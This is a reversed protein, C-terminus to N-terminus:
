KSSGSPFRIVSQLGHGAMIMVISSSLIGRVTLGHVGVTKIPLITQKSRACTTPTTTYFIYIRGSPVKLMVAYSAEPGDAPEVQVMDQWTKGQDVSRQTIVIQGSQGEHGAGTTLCCLWAGDDTKVIYPQDSYSLDPIITGQEIHRWDPIDECRVPSLPLAVGLLFASLIIYYQNKKLVKRAGTFRGFLQSLIWSPRQVCGM